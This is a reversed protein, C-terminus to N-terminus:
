YALSIITIFFIILLAPVMTALFPHAVFTEWLGSHRLHDLFSRPEDFGVPAENPEQARPRIRVRAAGASVMRRASCGLTACRGGMEEEFCDLHYHAQCGNCVFDPGGEDPHYVADRCFPCTRSDTASARVSLELQKVVKIKKGGPAYYESWRRRAESHSLDLEHRLEEVQRYYRQRGTEM